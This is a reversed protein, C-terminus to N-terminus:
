QTLLVQNTINGPSLFTQGSCDLPDADRAAQSIILQARNTIGYAQYNTFLTDPMVDFYSLLKRGTPTNVQVAIDSSNVGGPEGGFTGIPQGNTVASGITLNNTVNVHFLIFFFAPNNTASIWLQNGSHPTSEPFDNQVYGTIPSFLKVQNPDTNTSITFYHKMSRCHEFDDSYDHGEGSRFRSIASIKPVEIYDAQVLQPIGNANVDYTAASAMAGNTSAVVRFFLQPNHFAGAPLVVSNSLNTVLVSGYPAPATQWASGLAPTYQISCYINTQDNTWGLTGDLHFSTIQLQLASAAPGVALMLLFWGRWCQAKIASM